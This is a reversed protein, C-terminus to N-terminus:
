IRRSEQARGNRYECGGKRKDRFEYTAHVWIALDTFMLVRTLGRVQKPSTVVSFVGLITRLREWTSKLSAGPGPVPPPQSLCPSLSGKSNSAYAHVGPLDWWEPDDRRM